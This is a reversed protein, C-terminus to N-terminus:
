ANHRPSTGICPMAMPIVHAVAPTSKDVHALLVCDNGNAQAHRAVIQSCMHAQHQKYSAQIIHSSQRCKLTDTHMYWMTVHMHTHTASSKTDKHTQTNSHICLCMQMRRHTCEHTHTHTCALTHLLTNIRCSLRRVHMCVCVCVCGSVSVCNDVCLHCTVMGWLSASCRKELLVKIRELHALACLCQCILWCVGTGLDSALGCCPLGM